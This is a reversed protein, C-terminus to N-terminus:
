AWCGTLYISMLALGLSLLAVTTKLVIVGVDETAM